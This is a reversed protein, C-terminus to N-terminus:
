IETCINCLGVAIEKIVNQKMYRSCLETFRLPSTPLRSLLNCYIISLNGNGNETGAGM